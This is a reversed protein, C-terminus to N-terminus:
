PKQFIVVSERVPIKGFQKMQQPSNGKMRTVFIKEAIFGKKEALLLLLHDVPVVVGGWRSNGVVFAARAGKRMVYFLNELNQELDIFYGAIMQPIKSNNGDTLEM